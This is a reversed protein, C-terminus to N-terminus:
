LRSGNLQDVDGLLERLTSLGRHLHVGVTNPSINMAAATARSDMDLILRLAVVERQRDPLSSVAQLVDAGVGMALETAQHSDCEDVLVVERRARRWWSRHYRVATLVVWAQPAPHRAAKQWRAFARAYGEAVADEARAPEAGAAIVARLCEDRTRQYFEAFEEAAGVGYL